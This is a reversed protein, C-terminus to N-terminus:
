GVQLRDRGHLGRDRGRQHIARPHHRPRVERGSGPQFAADADHVGVEGDGDGDGDCLSFLFVAFTQKNKHEVACADNSPSRTIFFFM